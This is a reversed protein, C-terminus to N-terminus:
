RADEGRLEARAAEARHAGAELERLLDDDVGSARRGAPRAPKPKRATENIRDEAAQAHEAPRSIAGVTAQATQATNSADERAGTADAEAVAAKTEANEARTELGAVKREQRWDSFANWGAWGSFVVLACIALVVPLGLKAVTKEISIM